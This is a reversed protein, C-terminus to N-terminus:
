INAKLNELVPKIEYMLIDAFLLEDRDELSGSLANLKQNLEFIDVPIEEYGKVADLGDVLASIDELLFVVKEDFGRSEGTSYNYYMSEMRTILNAALERVTEKIENIKDEM